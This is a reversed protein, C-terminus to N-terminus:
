AYPQIQIPLNACMALMKMANQNSGDVELFWATYKPDNGVTEKVVRQIKSFLVFIFDLFIKSFKHKKKIHESNVKLCDFKAEAQATGVYFAVCLVICFISVTKM